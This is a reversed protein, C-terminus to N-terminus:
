LLNLQFLNCVLTKLCLLFCTKCLYCFWDVKLQFVKSTMSPFEIAIFTDSTYIISSYKFTVLIKHKTTALLNQGLQILTFLKISFQSNKASLHIYRFAVDLPPYKELINKWIGFANQQIFMYASCHKCLLQLKGTSFQVFTVFIRAAKVFKKVHCFFYIQIDDLLDISVAFNIRLKNLVLSSLNVVNKSRTFWIKFVYVNKPLRIM